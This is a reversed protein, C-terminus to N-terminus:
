IISWFTYINKCWLVTYVSVRYKSSTFSSEAMGYCSSKNFFALRFESFNPRQGRPSLTFRCNKQFTRRWRFPVVLRLLTPRLRSWSIILIQRSWRVSLLNDPHSFRAGVTNARFDTASSVVRLWSLASSKQNGFISFNALYWYKSLLSRLSLHRSNLAWNLRCRTSCSRLSNILSFIITYLIEVYNVNAQYNAFMMEFKRWCTLCGSLQVWGTVQSRWVSDKLTRVMEMSRWGRTWDGLYSWHFVWRHPFVTGRGPLTDRFLKPFFCNVLCIVRFVWSCVFAYAAEPFSTLPQPFASCPLTLPRLCLQSNSHCRASLPVVLVDNRLNCPSPIFRRM